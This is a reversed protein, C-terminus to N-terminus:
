IKKFYDNVLKIYQSKAEEETVNHAQFLANTKFANILPHRSNPPSDNKTAIKYYAYLRLLLDAPLPDSYHNIKEVAQKFATELQPINM